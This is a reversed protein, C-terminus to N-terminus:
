TGTVVLFKALDVVCVRPLCMSQGFAEFSWRGRYEGACRTKGGKGGRVGRDTRETMAKLIRPIIRFM